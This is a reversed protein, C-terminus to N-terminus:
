LGAVPLSKPTCADMALHVLYAGGMALGALRLIKEGADRPQWQYLRYVGYGLMGAAVLSHFFKRHNPHLPPELMDPLTGAAAAVGGMAVARGVNVPEGPTNGGAAAVGVTLAAGIRHANASAM